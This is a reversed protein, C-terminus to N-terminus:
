VNGKEDDVESEEMEIIYNALEEAEEEPFSFEDQAVFQPEEDHITVSLVAGLNYFAMPMDDKPSEKYLYLYHNDGIIYDKFSHVRSYGDGMTLVMWKPKKQELLKLTM